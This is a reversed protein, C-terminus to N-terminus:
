GGHQKKWEQYRREKEPDDYAHASTSGSIKRKAGETLFRDFDKRGTSEEYSKQLGHLQGAMLKEYTAIVGRLQAPSNAADVTKAAEERDTVGGGSGVIAKVIEDGVIKKAANFNTPAPNGTQEAIKNAVSNAIKLDHNNLADALEGLTGLHDIATNFSRVTQGQKGSTFAKYATSRVGYEQQNYDPNYKIAEELIREREGGKTSLKSPDAEYNAVKKVLDREGAPLSKLYDDGSLATNGRASSNQAAIQAAPVPIHTEKAVMKDYTPKDIRGAKLDDALKGLPSEAPKQQAQGLKAQLMPLAQKLSDANLTNTDIKSILNLAVENGQYRQQLSSIEDTITQKTSQWAKEPLIGGKVQSDYMQAATTGVRLFESGVELASKRNAEALDQEAIKTKEKHEATLANKEDITAREAGMKAFQQQLNMAANPDKQGVQRILDAQGEPTSTDAKAFIDRLAKQNQAEKQMQQTQMWAQQLAQQNRAAGVFDPPAVNPTIAEWAM